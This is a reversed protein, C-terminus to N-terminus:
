GFRRRIRILRQVYVWVLKHPFADPDPQPQFGKLPTHPSCTSEDIIDGCVEPNVNLLVCCPLNLYSYTRKFFINNATM